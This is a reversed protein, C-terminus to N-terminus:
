SLRNLQQIRQVVPPHSYYFRAYLPHPHLNSLNDKSLKKLASALDVSPILQSAFADAEREHRRSFAAMFPFLFFSLASTAFALLYLQVFLGPQDIVFVNALWESRLIQFGVYISVLGVIESLLIMKIIHKKKWHGAEHALIALVENKNMLQILTDYLVIRKVRGFGTFYANTHKSRKSEDVKFIRSIAIGAKDMLVRIDNALGDSDDDELPTFKNFLPEIVYPSIYMIFLSVIVFFAWTWIWWTDPNANVIWLALSGFILFLVVSVVISKITDSIWLRFTTTNFGYRQEIVFTEYLNFPIAIVFKIGGLVMFFALGQVIFSSSLGSIWNNYMNLLGSFIFVIQFVNGVVGSIFELRTHDITYRSTKVLEDQNIMGKFEDPVQTGYLKLHKINLFELWYEAFNVLIYAMLFIFQWNNM